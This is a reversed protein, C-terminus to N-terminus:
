TCPSLAMTYIIPAINLGDNTYVRYMTYFVVTFRSNECKLPFLFVFLVQTLNHRADIHPSSTLPRYINLRNIRAFRLMRAM